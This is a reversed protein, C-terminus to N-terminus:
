KKKLFLGGGGNRYPYLLSALCFMRDTILVYPKAQVHLISAIPLFFTLKQDM